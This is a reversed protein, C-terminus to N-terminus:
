KDLINIIIVDNDHINNEKLTKFRNIINGNSTFINNTESYSPYHEYLKLEIKNFNDTDKCILSYHVYENFSTFIISILKEGENLVFPFRSLKIELEKIEKDKELINTCILDKSNKNNELETIKEKLKKNENKQKELENELHTIKELLEKNKIEGNNGLNENSKIELMSEIHSKNSVIYSNLYNLFSYNNGSFIHKKLKYYLSYLEDILENEENESIGKYKKEYLKDFVSKLINKIKTPTEIIHNLDLDLKEEIELIKDFTYRAFNKLTIRNNWDNYLL